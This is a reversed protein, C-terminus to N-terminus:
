AARAPPPLPLGLERAAQELRLRSLVRVEEGRYARKATRPDVIGEVCLRRYDHETLKKM